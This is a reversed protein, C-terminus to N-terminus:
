KNTAFWNVIAPMNKKFGGPIYFNIFGARETTKNTFDHITKSPIRIFTGQDADIWKDGVLFSITGELMYFVEDNDDHQHAGVGEFGPEIWWESISYKENTENEDAKFIATMKGCNYVRGQEKTLILVESQHHQHKM